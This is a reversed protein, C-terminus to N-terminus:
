WPVMAVNFGVLACVSLSTITSVTIEVLATFTVGLRSHVADMRRVSWVVYAFFGIYALYLSASIASSGGSLHDFQFSLTHAYVTLLVRSICVELAIPSAEPFQNGVEANQAVAPFFYTLALFTAPYSYKSSTYVDLAPYFLSTIVVCSILIVRVQHTACHSNCGAYACRVCESLVYM